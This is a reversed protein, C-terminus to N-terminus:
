EKWCWAGFYKFINSEYLSVFYSIFDGPFEYRQTNERVFCLYNSTQLQSMHQDWSCSSGTVQFPCCSPGLALAVQHSLLYHHWGLQWPFAHFAFSTNLASDPKHSSEILTLINLTPITGFRCILFKVNLFSEPMWIIVTGRSFSGRRLFYSVEQVRKDM